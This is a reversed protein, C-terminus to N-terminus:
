TRKGRRNDEKQLEVYATRMFATMDVVTTGDLHFHIEKGGGGGSQAPSYSQDASGGGREGMMGRTQGATYVRGTSADVLEPGNEGVLNMGKDLFGGTAHRGFSANTAAGPSSAAGGGGGGAGAVAAIVANVKDMIGQLFDIIPQLAAKAAAAMSGFAAGITGTATNKVFAIVSDIKDKISNYVDQMAIVINNYVSTFADKVAGILSNGFAIFNNFLPVLVGNWIGDPLAGLDALIATAADKAKQIGTTFIEAIKAINDKVNAVLLGASLGFLFGLQLFTTAASELGNGLVTSITNGISQMSTTTAGGITDAVGQAAGNVDSLKLAFNSMKALADAGGLKDIGPGFLAVADATKKAPDTVKGLATFVDNLAQDMTISHDSLDKAVDGLGMSKMAAIFAPSPKEIRTHFTDVATALAGMGLPGIGAQSAAIILGGMGLASLGAAAFKPGYKEVISQIQEMPLGTKQAVTTLINLAEVPENKLEPFVAQLKGVDIIVQAASMGWAKAVAAADKEFQDMDNAGGTTLGTIHQRTAEIANAADQFNSVLGSDFLAKAQDKLVGLADGTIGTRASMNTMADDVQILNELGIQAAGILAGFGAGALMGLGGSLGEMGSTMQTVGDTVAGSMGQFSSAIGGVVSSMNDVAGFTAVIDYLSM